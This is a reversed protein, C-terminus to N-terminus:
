TSTAVVIAIDHQSDALFRFKSFRSARWTFHSASHLPQGTSQSPHTAFYSASLWRSAPLLRSALSHISCSSYSPQGRQLLFSSHLSSRVRECIMQFLALKGLFPICPPTRCPSVSGSRPGAWQRHHQPRQSIGIDRRRVHLQSKLGAVQRRGSGSLKPRHNTGQLEIPQVKRERM